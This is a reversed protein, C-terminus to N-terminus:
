LIPTDRQRKGLLARRGCAHYFVVMVHTLGVAPSAQAASDAAPFAREACAASTSVARM